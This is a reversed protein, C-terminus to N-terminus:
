VNIIMMKVLYNINQGEFSFIGSVSKNINRKIGMVHFLLLILIM